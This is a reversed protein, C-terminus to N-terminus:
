RMADAWFSGGRALAQGVEIASREEDDDIAVVFDGEFLNIYEGHRATFEDDVWLGAIVDDVNAPVPFSNTIEGTVGVPSPEDVEFQRAHTVRVRAGVPYTKGAIKIM